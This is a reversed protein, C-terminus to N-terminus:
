QELEAIREKAEEAFTMQYIIEYLEKPGIIEECQRTGM